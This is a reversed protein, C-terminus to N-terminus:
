DETGPAGKCKAKKDAAVAKFDIPWLPAKVTKSAGPPLAFVIGSAKEVDAVTVQVVSLDNGQNEKHPFLFAQVEKTQEDIVIKFFSDPVDVADPGIKKDSATNYINGAYILLTHQRSFTWAGTASELLKWIGRNLGPLQPSMNSMLFSEYEVQQDYSQHADNAIHGQDYGNGAYDKPDSRKNAPLSADAVFANSRPVCGNVTQPSVVWTTWVPIKAINDHLTFYGQRCILTADSKTVQPAGYPVLAACQAPPFPARQTWAFSSSVSLILMSIALLFKNM